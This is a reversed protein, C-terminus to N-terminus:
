FKLGVGFTLMHQNYRYLASSSSNKSFSYSADVFFNSTINWCAALGLRWQEDKRRQREWVTAPGDYNEARYTIFPTIDIDYPAKFTASANAEWGKYDYVDHGANGGIYRVGLLAHHQSEGFFVRLSEGINWYQGEHGDKSDYSRHEFGGRTILQVSPVVSYIVTGEGGWVKVFQDPGIRNDQDLVEAKGRVDVLFNSGIMRGGLAARGFAFMNNSSLSNDFNWRRYGAADAVVWFPSDKGLRYGGDLMGSLYGGYTDQKEIGPIEFIGPMDFTFFRTNPGHNANSDYILGSSLRGHLMWPSESRELASVADTIESDSINPQYRRLEELVLRASEADGQRVFMRALEIRYVAKNPFLRVLREYAVAAHNYNNLKGASKAVGLNIEEDDPEQRLLRMYLTFADEYKGADYLSLAEAKSQQFASQAAPLNAAWLPTPAFFASFLCLGTFFLVALLHSHKQKM